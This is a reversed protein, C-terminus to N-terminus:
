FPDEYAYGAEPPPEPPPAVRDIPLRDYWRASAGQQRGVWVWLAGWVCSCGANMRYKTGSREIEYAIRGGHWNGPNDGRDGGLPGPGGGCRQCDAFELLDLRHGSTNGEPDRM